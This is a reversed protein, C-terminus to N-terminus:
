PLWRSLGALHEPRHIRAVELWEVIMTAIAGLRQHKIHIYAVSSGDNDIGHMDSPFFALIDILGRMTITENITASM